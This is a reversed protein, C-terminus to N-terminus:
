DAPAWDVLQTGGGGRTFRLEVTFAMASNQTDTAPHRTGQAARFSLYDEDSFDRKDPPVELEYFVDTVSWDFVVCSTDDSLFRARTMGNSPQSDTWDFSGDLDQMLIEEVNSVSFTVAGGSSSTGTSPESQYDDIM